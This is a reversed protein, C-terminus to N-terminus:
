MYRIKHYLSNNEVPKVLVSSIAVIEATVWVGSKLAVVGSFLVVWPFLVNALVDIPDVVTGEGDM